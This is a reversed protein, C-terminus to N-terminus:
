ETPPLPAVIPRGTSTDFVSGVPLEKGDESEVGFADSLGYASAIAQGEKQDAVIARQLETITRTRDHIRAMLLALRQTDRPTM